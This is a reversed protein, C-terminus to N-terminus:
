SSHVHVFVNWYLLIWQFVFSGKPSSVCQSLRIDRRVFVDHRLKDRSWCVLVEHQAVAMMKDELWIVSLLFEVLWLQSPWSWRQCGVCLATQGRIYNRCPCLRRLDHRGGVCSFLLEEGQLTCEKTNVNYAPYYINASSHKSSCQVYLKEIEELSNLEMFHSPECILDSLSFDKTLM